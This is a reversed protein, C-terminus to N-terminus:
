EGGFFAKVVSAASRGDQLYQFTRLFTAYEEAYEEQVSPLKELHEVVEDATDLLPGPATPRYDYLFGRVAGSYSDLDPVLFLMPKGTLAFDFRLSSYDLVGVDAALILDNIEPYDTVDIHRASGRDRKQKGSHFRHGRLLLVFDEGLHASAAELDLHRLLPVSHARSALDDRWTPAYLVVTQDEGIGLRARTEDRIQKAEDSVLVDDRPYGHSHIPGDYRYERRYYEDMEPIPTLILDWDRSTRELELEIRRPTYYKGEWLRIGMSKAPYGHFTQLFRQGPRKQFWMPFDINHMLYGATALVDYWERSRIVVPIGGEPVTASRDEVGWYLKLDPRTRRLEHHIALQSDTATVGRYAQLYVVSPDIPLESEALRNQLQHQRYPGLEEDTLPPTVVLFLHQNADSRVMVRHLDSLLWLPTRYVLEPDLFIRETDIQGDATEVSMTMRYSAVPLPTAGLGWEDWLMPFVAEFRRDEQPRIEAPVTARGGSLTLDWREPAEGLWRGSLTLTEGELTVDTILPTCRVAVLHCNGPATRRLAISSLGEAELWRAESGEPWALPSTQGDALVAQLALAARGGLPDLSDEPVALSFRSGQVEASALVRGGPASATVERVDAARSLTGELTGGRLRIESLQALPRTVKFTWGTRPRWDPGWVHGRFARRDLYGASGNVDRHTVRATRTLGAHRLTLELAWTASDGAEAAPGILDDARVTVTVGGDDYCQYRHRAVATVRPHSWQTVELPIRGSVDEGVLEATVEPFGDAMSVMNIFAFLDLKVVDNGAWRMRRVSTSLTTETDNLRFLEEPVGVSPDGFHTLQAFVVGDRVETPMSLDEFWRAAVLEELETRKDHAALWAKVRPEVRVRGRVGSDALEWLKRATASLLQWESADAREADDLFAPLEGDLVGYLWAGRVEASFQDLRELMEEVSAVWQRLEPMVVPVQGLTEGKGRQMWRYTVRALVDFSKARLYAKVVVQDAGAGKSDDFTLGASDWFERRFVRNNLLRDTIAMPFEAIDVGRRDRQHVLQFATAAIGPPSLEDKAQGVAFDSGTEVLSDVLAALGGPTLVDAAGVFTLYPGSAAESGARLAAGLTPAAAAVRVRPDEDAWLRISSLCASTPGYPVVVVEIPGYDQSLLSEMAEDLFPDHQDSVAM